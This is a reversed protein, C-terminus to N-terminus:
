PRDTSIAIRLEGHGPNGYARASSRSGYLAERVSGGISRFRRWSGTLGLAKRSQDVKRPADVTVGFHAAAHLHPRSM